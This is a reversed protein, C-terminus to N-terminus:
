AAAARAQILSSSTSGSSSKAATWTPRRPSAAKPSKEIGSSRARAAETRRTVLSIWRRLAEGAEAEVRAAAVDGEELGVVVDKRGERRKECPAEPVIGEGQDVQAAARGQDGPLAAHLRAEALLCQGQGAGRGFALVLRQPPAIEGRRLIGQAPIRPELALEEGLAVPPV